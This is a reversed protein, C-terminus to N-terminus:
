FTFQVEQVTCFYFICYLATCYLVTCYLVTCYLVTCYLVTCYLVTSYMRQTSVDKEIQNARKRMVELLLSTCPTSSSLDDAIRKSSSESGKSQMLVRGNGNGNGNGDVRQVPFLSKPLLPRDATSSPSQFLAPTECDDIIETTQLASSCSTSSSGNSPNNSGYDGNHYDIGPHIACPSLPPSQLNSPISILKELEVFAVFEDLQSTVSDGVEQRNTGPGKGQKARQEEHLM